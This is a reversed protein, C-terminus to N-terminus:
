GGAPHRPPDHQPAARHERAAWRANRVNNSLFERTTKDVNRNGNKDLTRNKLMKRYTGSIYLNPAPDNTM